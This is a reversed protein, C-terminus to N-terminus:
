KRRPFAVEKDPARPAAFDRSGTAQLPHDEVVLQFLQAAFCQEGLQVLADAVYALARISEEVDQRIFVVTRQQPDLGHLLLYQLCGKMVSVVVPGASLSLLGIM